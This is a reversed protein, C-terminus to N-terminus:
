QFIFLLLRYFTWSGTIIVIVVIWVEFWKDIANFIRSFM